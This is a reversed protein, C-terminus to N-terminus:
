QLKWNHNVLFLLSDNNLYQTQRVPNYYLSEHIIFRNCWCGYEPQTEDMVRQCEYGGSSFTFRKVNSHASNSIHNLIQVTIVGEFPWQLQDDYDGKVLSVVVAVAGGTGCWGNADVRLRFHYGKETCFVPSYWRENSKRKHEFGTMTLIVPMTSDKSLSTIKYLCDYKTHDVANALTGSWECGHHKNPCCLVICDDILSHPFNASYTSHSKTVSCNIGRFNGRRMCQHATLPVRDTVNNTGEYSELIGNSSPIETALSCMLANAQRGPSAM